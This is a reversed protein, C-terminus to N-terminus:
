YFAQFLIKLEKQFKRNLFLNISLFNRESKLKTKAMM